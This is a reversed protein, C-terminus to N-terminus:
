IASRRTQRRGAEKADGEPNGRGTCSANEDVWFVEGPHSVTLPVGRITIGHSFGGPYNAMKPLAVGM